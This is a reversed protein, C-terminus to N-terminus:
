RSSCPTDEAPPPAEGSIEPGVKRPHLEWHEPLYSWMLGLRDAIANVQGVVNQADTALYAHSGGFAILSPRWELLGADRLAHRTNNITQELRGVQDSLGKLESRLRKLEEQDQRNM